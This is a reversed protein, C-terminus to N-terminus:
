NREGGLERLKAEANARMREKVGAPLSSDGPLVVILRRYAEATCDRDAAAQCADALSDYANASTPHTLANFRQVRVAGAADGGRLLRYGARNLDAEIVTPVNPYTAALQEARRVLDTTSVRSLLAVWEESAPIPAALSRKMRVVGDTTSSALTDLAGQRHLLIGDLFRRVAGVVARYAAIGESTSRPEGPRVLSLAAEIVVDDGFDGHTGRGVDATYRDALPMAEIVASRDRAANAEHGSRLTLVPRRNRYLSFYPSAFVKQPDDGYSPDLGVVAGILPDRSELMLAVIGGTSYGMAAVRTRDVWAHEILAGLATEVDRTQTEIAVPNSTLDGTWLGAGLLPVAAVVYGYSALYEALAINDPSRNYWGGSYVVLPYDGPQVTADLCAAGRLSLMTEFTSHASQAYSRYSQEDWDQVWQNASAFYSDPPRAYLYDRLAARQCGSVEVAPYWVDIRVPRGIPGRRGALQHSLEWVRSRDIVWERHFGIAHLGAPLGTTM